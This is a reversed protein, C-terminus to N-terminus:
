PTRTMPSYGGANFAPGADVCKAEAMACAISFNPSVKPMPERCGPRASPDTGLNMDRGVGSPAETSANRREVM